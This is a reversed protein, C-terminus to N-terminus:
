RHSPIPYLALLYQALSVDLYVSGVPLFETAHEVALDAAAQADEQVRARARVCVCVCPIGFALPM